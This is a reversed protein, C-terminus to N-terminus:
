NGTRWYEGIATFAESQPMPEPRLQFQVGRVEVSTCDDGRTLRIDGPRLVTTMEDDAAASLLYEVVEAETPAAGHWALVYGGGILIPWLRFALCDSLPGPISCLVSMVRGLVEYTHPDHRQARITRDAATM